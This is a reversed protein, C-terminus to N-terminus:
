VLSNVEYVREGCIKYLRYKLDAKFLDIPKRTDFANIVKRNLSCDHSDDIKLVFEVDCDIKQRAYDYNFATIKEHSLKSTDQCYIGSGDFGYNRVRSIVPTIVYMGVLPLVTSIAIDSVVKTLNPKKSLSGNVFDIYRADTFCLKKWNNSKLCKEIYGNEILSQIKNFREILFGTGWMPCLFDALFVNANDMTLKWNLPYSYGTVAIIDEHTEAYELGKNIYELFNPSFECDDDTRIFRDYKSSIYELIEKSNRSSGYNKDRKILNFSAFETFDEKLYECIKNYGDKQSDKAPYDLAIYVDTYKAWTNKRLSEMLRIFHESRCLTPIYIPAYKM